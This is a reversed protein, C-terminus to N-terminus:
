LIGNVLQKLNEARVDLDVRKIREDILKRVKIVDKFNNTEAAFITVIYSTPEEYFGGLKTNSDYPQKYYLVIKTDDKEKLQWNNPNDIENNSM